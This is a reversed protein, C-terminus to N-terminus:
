KGPYVRKMTDLRGYPVEMADAVERALAKGELSSDIFYVYTSGYDPHTQRKPHAGDYKYILPLRPDRGPTDVIELGQLAADTPSLSYKNASM